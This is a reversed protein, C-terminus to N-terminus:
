NSGIISVLNGAHQDKTVSTVHKFHFKDCCNRASCALQPCAAPMSCALSFDLWQHSIMGTWCPCINTGAISYEVCVLIAVDPKRQM